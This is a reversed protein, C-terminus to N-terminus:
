RCPPKNALIKDAARDAEEEPFVDCVIHGLEHAVAIRLAMYRRVYNPDDESPILDSNIYTTKTSMNTVALGTKVKLAKQVDPWKDAPYVVWKWDGASANAQYSDLVKSLAKGQSQYKEHTIVVRAFAQTSVMCVMLVAILKMSRMYALAKNMLVKAPKRDEYRKVLYIYGALLFIGPIPFVVTIITLVIMITWDLKTMVLEREQSDM